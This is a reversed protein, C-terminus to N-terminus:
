ARPVREGAWDGVGLLVEGAQRFFFSVTPLFLTQNDVAGPICGAARFEMWLLGM